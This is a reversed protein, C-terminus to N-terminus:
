SYVELPYHINPEQARISIHAAVSPLVVLVLMPQFTSAGGLHPPPAITPGPRRGAALEDNVAVGYRRKQDGHKRRGEVELPGEVGGLSSGPDGISWGGRSPVRVAAAVPLSAGRVRDGQYGTSLVCHSSTSPPLYLHCATM